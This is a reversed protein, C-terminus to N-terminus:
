LAAFFIMLLALLIAVIIFWAPKGLHSQPSIYDGCHPCQETEESILKRCHPCVALDPEDSIDMDSQDPAEPDDEDDWGADIDHESRV